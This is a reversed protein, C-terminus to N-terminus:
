RTVVSRPVVAAGAGTRFVRGGDARRYGSKTRVLEVDPLHPFHFREGPSLDRFRAIPNLWHDIVQM